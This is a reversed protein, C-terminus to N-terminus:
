ENQLRIIAIENQDARENIQSKRRNGAVVLNHYIRTKM